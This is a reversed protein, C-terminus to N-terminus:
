HIRLMTSLALHKGKKLGLLVQLLSLGQHQELHATLHTVIPTLEETHQAHYFLAKKQNQNNHTFYSEELWAGVYIPPHYSFALPQTLSLTQDHASQRIQKITQVEAHYCDAILIPQDRHMIKNKTIQLENQSRIQILTEFYESMRNIKIVQTGDSGIEISILHDIGLCPTFGARRAANRIMDTVLQLEISQDLTTQMFLYHKKTNLYHRVFALTTVSALLLAILIEPLGIGKQPHM